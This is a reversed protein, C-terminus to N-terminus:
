GGVLDLVSDPAGNSRVYETLGARDGSLARLNDQHEEIWKRGDPAIKPTEGEKLYSSAIRGAYLERYAQAPTTNGDGTRSLFKAYAEVSQKVRRGINQNFKNAETHAVGRLSEPVSARVKAVPPYSTSVEILDKVVSFNGERVIVGSTGTNLPREAYQQAALADNKLARERMTTNFGDYIRQRTNPELTDVQDWFAEDNVAKSIEDWTRVHVKSPDSALQDFMEAAFGGLTEKDEQVATGSNAMVTIVGAAGTGTEARTFDVVQDDVFQSLIDSMKSVVSMAVAGDPLNGALRVMGMVQREKETDVLANDAMANNMTLVRTLAEESKKGELVEVTTAIMADLPAMHANFTDQSIGQGGANFETYIAVKMSQWDTQLRVAEAPGLNTLRQAITSPDAGPLLGISKSVLESVSKNIHPLTRVFLQTAKLRNLEGRHREIDLINKANIARAELEARAELQAAAGLPDRDWMARPINYKEGQTIMEERQKQYLEEQELRQAVKSFGRNFSNNGVSAFERALGPAMDTYEAVIKNVQAQYWQQSRVGQEVARQKNKVEAVMRSLLPSDATSVTASPGGSITATAFEDEEVGQFEPLDGFLSDVEERLNSKAVSEFIGFGANVAGVAAQVEAENSVVTGRKGVGQLSISGVDKDLAM